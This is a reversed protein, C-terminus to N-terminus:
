MACTFSSRTSRRMLVWPGACIKGVACACVIVDTLVRVREWVGLLLSSHAGTTRVYWLNHREGLIDCSFVKGGDGVANALHGTLGASGSGAELVKDGPRLGLLMMTAAADKPYTPTASRPLELVADELTPRAVLFPKRRSSYCIGGPGAALIDDHAVNGSHSGFKGEPELLLVHRHTKRQGGISHIVVTDGYEFEM